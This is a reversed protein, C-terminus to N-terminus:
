EEEFWRVVQHPPRKHTYIAYARRKWEEASVEGGFWGEAEPISERLDPHRKVIRWLRKARRKWKKSM